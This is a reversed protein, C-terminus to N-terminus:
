NPVPKGVTATAATLSDNHFYLGDYVRMRPYIQQIDKQFTSLSRKTKENKM